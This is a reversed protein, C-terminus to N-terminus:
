GNFDGIVKELPVRPAVPIRLEHFALGGETANIVQIGAFSMFTSLAALYDRQALMMDDTIVPEGEPGEMVRQTAEYKLPEGIHRMGGPFGCDQGCFVVRRPKMVACIAQIAAVTCNLGEWYPWLKPHADSIETAVPAKAASRIWRVDKWPLRALKPNVVASLIATTDKAHEPELRDFVYDLAFFYHGKVYRQADNLTVVTGRKIKEFLPIQKQLSPGSGVLYVTGDDAEPLNWISKETIVPRNADWNEKWFKPKVDGVQRSAEWGYDKGPVLAVPDPIMHHARKLKADPHEKCRYVTQTTGNVTHSEAIQAEVNCTECVWVENVLAVHIGAERDFLLEM